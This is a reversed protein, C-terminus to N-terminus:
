KRRSRILYFVLLGLVILISSYVIYTGAGRESEVATPTTQSTITAQASPTIQIPQPTDTPPVTTLTATPFVFPVGECINQYSILAPQNGIGWSWANVDGDVVQSQDSGIASYTWGSVNSQWYSWYDPMSCFCNNSPCGVGVIKCVATGQNPNTATEISLGSRELLGLGSISDEAFSVCATYVSGNDSFVVLGAQHSGISSKINSLPVGSLGIIAEATSYPNAYTAGISGDPKQLNMLAQVPNAQEGTWSQGTPDEGATILAQLIWGTSDANLPDTDWSPKWGGSALQTTHFYQLANQIVQDQVNVQKSTLLATVVLATTDPDGAGWSGDVAQSQILYQGASKPVSNGALSLGLIVWAQNSDSAQGSTYGQQATTSYAGSDTQISSELESVMDMSGFDTPDNGALSVASLLLGVRGPFLTGTTDHTFSIAQTALYDLMSNGAISVVGSIPNGSVVFALVSRATTDPDSTESLGLIGGDEQQQTRLYALGNDIVQTQQLINNAMATNPQLLLLLFLVLVLGSTLSLLLYYKRNMIRELYISLISTEGTPEFFLVGTAQVPTSIM